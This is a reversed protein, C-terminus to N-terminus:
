PQLLPPAAGDLAFDFCRPFDRHGSGFHPGGRQAAIGVVDFGGEVFGQLLAIDFLQHAAPGVFVVDDADVGTAPPQVPRAGDTGGEFGQKGVAHNVGPRLLHALDVRHVAGHVADDLPHRHHGGLTRAIGPHNRGVGIVPCSLAPAQHGVMGARAANVFQLIPAESGKFVM